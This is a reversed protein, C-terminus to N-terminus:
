KSSSTQSDCPKTLADRSAMSPAHHQLFGREVSMPGGAAPKAAVMAASVRVLCPPDAELQPPSMDWGDYSGTAENEAPTVGQYAPLARM